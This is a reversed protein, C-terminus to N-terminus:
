RRLLDAQQDGAAIAEDFNAWIQKLVPGPRFHQLDFVQERLSSLAQQLALSDSDHAQDSNTTAALPAQLAANCILSATGSAKSLTCM